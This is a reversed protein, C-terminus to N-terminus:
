NFGGGNGLNSLVWNVGGNTTKLIIWSNFGGAIFGTNANLFFVSKLNETTGSVQSVWNLGGNTTKLITGYNGAEYGTSAGIFQVDNITNCQPLPNQTVWVPQAFTGTCIALKMLLVTFIIRQIKNM